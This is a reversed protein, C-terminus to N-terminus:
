APQIITRQYDLRVQYQEALDSERKMHLDRTIRAPV